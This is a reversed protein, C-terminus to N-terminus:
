VKLHTSTHSRFQSLQSHAPLPALDQGGWSHRQQPSPAAGLPNSGAPDELRVGKLSPNQNERPEQHSKRERRSPLVPPHSADQSQGHNCKEENDYVQSWHHQHHNYTGTVLWPLATNLKVEPTPWRCHRSGITGHTPKTRPIRPAGLKESAETMSCQLGGWKEHAPQLTVPM